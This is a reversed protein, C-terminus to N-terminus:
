DLAHCSLAHSYGEINCFEKGEELTGLGPGLVTARM